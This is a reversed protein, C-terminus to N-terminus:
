VYDVVDERGCLEKRSKMRWGDSPMTERSEMGARVVGTKRERKSVEWPRGAYFVNGVERSGEDERGAKRGRM